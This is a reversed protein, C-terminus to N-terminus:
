YFKTCILNEPYEYKIIHKAELNKNIYIEADNRYIEKPYIINEIYKIILNEIVMEMFENNLLELPVKCTLLTPKLKKKLISQYKYGLRQALIFVYESGYVLYHTENELLHQKHTMFSIRKERYKMGLYSLHEKIATNFKDDTLEPFEIKNFLKRTYKNREDSNLIGLGNELYSKINNTATGHYLLIYCNNQKIYEEIDTFISNTTFAYIDEIEIYRNDKSALKLLEKVIKNDIYKKMIPEIHHNWVKPNEFDFIKEM